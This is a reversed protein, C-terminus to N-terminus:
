FGVLINMNLGREHSVVGPSDEVTTGSYFVFNCEQQPLAMTRFLRTDSLTLLSHSIPEYLTPIWQYKYQRAQLMTTDPRHGSKYPM